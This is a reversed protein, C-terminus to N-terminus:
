TASRVGFVDGKAGHRLWTKRTQADGLKELATMTESLDM